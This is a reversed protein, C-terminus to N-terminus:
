SQTAPASAGCLGRAQFFVEWTTGSVQRYLSGICINTATLNFTEHDSAYVATGVASSTSGTVVLEIIGQEVVPITITPDAATTEASDDAFGAFAGTAGPDTLRSVLGAATTKLADGRTIVSTAAMQKMAIHQPDGIAVM